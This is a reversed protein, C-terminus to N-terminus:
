LWCSNEQYKSLLVVQQLLNHYYIMNVLHGVVLFVQKKVLSIEAM